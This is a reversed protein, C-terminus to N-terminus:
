VEDSAFRLPLRHEQQVDVLRGAKICDSLWAAKVFLTSEKWDASASVSGLARISQQVTEHESIVHTVSPSCCAVM